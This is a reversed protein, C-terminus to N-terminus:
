ASHDLAARRAQERVLAKAGRADPYEGRGGTTSRAELEDIRRRVEWLQRRETAVTGTQNMHPDIGSRRLGVRRYALFM